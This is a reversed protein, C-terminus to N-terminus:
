QRPPVFINLSISDVPDNRYHDWGVIRLVASTGVKGTTVPIRIPTRESIDELSFEQQLATSTGRDVLTARVLRLPVPSVAVVNISRAGPELQVPLYERNSAGGTWAMFGLKSLDVKLPGLVQRVDIPLDEVQLNGDIRYSYTGSWDGAQLQIVGKGGAHKRADPALAAMLVSGPGSTPKGVHYGVVELTGAKPQPVVGECYAGSPRVRYRTPLISTSASKLLDGDCWAPADSNASMVVTALMLLAVAFWKSVNM